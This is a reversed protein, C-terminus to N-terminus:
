GVYGMYVYYSAIYISYTHRFSNIRLVTYEIKIAEIHLRNFTM